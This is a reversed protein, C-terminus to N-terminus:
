TFDAACPPRLPGRCPGPLPANTSGPKLGALTGLRQSILEGGRGSLHGRVRRSARGGEGGPSPEENNPSTAHGSAQGGNVNKCKVLTPHIHINLQYQPSHNGRQDFPFLNYADGSPSITPANEATRGPALTPGRCADYLLPIM